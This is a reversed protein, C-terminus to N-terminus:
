LSENKPLEKIKIDKLDRIKDDPRIKMFMCYDDESNCLGTFDSYSQYHDPVSRLRYCENAKPCQTKNCM